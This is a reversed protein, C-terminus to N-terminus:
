LRIRDLANREFFSSLKSKEFNKLRNKCEDLLYGM